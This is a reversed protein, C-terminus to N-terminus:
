KITELVLYPFTYTLISLYCHIMQFFSLPFRSPTLMDLLNFNSLCIELMQKLVFLFNFKRVLNEFKRENAFRRVKNLDIM